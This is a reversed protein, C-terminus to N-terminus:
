LNEGLFILFLPLNTRIFKMALNIHRKVGSESIGMKAAIDKIPLGAQRSLIFAEKQREPLMEILSKIQSSLMNADTIEESSPTKSILTDVDNVNEIPIPKFSSRSHNFILNRTMIFLLGDISDRENLLRRKEWLRIFVRQVIDKKENEDHIYLSTFNYVKGVYHRYVRAYAKRDSNKLLVIDNLQIGM